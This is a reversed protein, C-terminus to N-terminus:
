LQLVLWGSQPPLPASPQGSDEAHAPKAGTAPSAPRNGNTGADGRYVAFIMRTVIIQTAPRAETQKAAQNESDGSQPQANASADYDSVIEASRPSTRVVEWATLVVYERQREIGSDANPTEAKLLVERPAADTSAMQRQALGAPEAPLTVARRSSAYALPADGRGAALIEKTEVARLGSEGRVV